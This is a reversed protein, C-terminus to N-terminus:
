HHEFISFKVIFILFQMTVEFGLFQYFIYRGRSNLGQPKFGPKGQVFIEATISSGHFDYMRKLDRDNALTILTRRNGPLFYKISLSDQELNCMEALKLKLENYLTEPTIDVAHAEGGNYSLTGDESAVFEGLSQCILILKPRVM